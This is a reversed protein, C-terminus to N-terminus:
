RVRVRYSGTLVVGVNECCISASLPAGVSDCERTDGCLADGEIEMESEIRRGRDDRRSRDRWVSNHVPADGGDFEREDGCLAAGCILCLASSRYDFRDCVRCSRRGMLELVTISERPQAIGRIRRPLVNGIRDYPGTTAEEVAAEVDSSSVGLQQLFERLDARPDQELFDIGYHRLEVRIAKSDERFASGEGGYIGDCLFGLIM